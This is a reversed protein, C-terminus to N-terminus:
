EDRKLITRLAQALNEPKYDQGLSGRISGPRVSLPVNGEPSRANMLVPGGRDSPASGFASSLADLDPLGKGGPAAEGETPTYEGEDKQDLRSDPGSDSKEGLDLPVFTGSRSELGSDSAPTTWPQLNEEDGLTINVRSGIEEASDTASEATEGSAATKKSAGSHAASRIIELFEPLFRSLLWYFLLLLAGFGIGIALARILAYLLYARRILGILLSFLFAAGAVLLAPKVLSKM